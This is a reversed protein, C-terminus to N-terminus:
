KHAAQYGLGGGGEEVGEEKVLTIDNSLKICEMLATLPPWSLVCARSQLARTDACQDIEGVTLWKNM